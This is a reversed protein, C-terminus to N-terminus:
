FLYPSGCGLPEGKKGGKGRGWAAVWIKRLGKGTDRKERERDGKERKGLKGVKGKRERGGQTGNRIVYALRDFREFTFMRGMGSFGM